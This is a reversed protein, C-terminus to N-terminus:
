GTASPEDQTEGFGEEIEKMDEDTVGSLRQATEFLRDLAAANKSGLKIVDSPTFLLQGDGDVASLAVLKARANRMNAVQKKGVQRIMSNEWEDREAGTLSRLRVDGGWEPCAVVEYTRDDAALIQERSLLSM